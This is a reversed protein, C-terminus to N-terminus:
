PRCPLRGSQGPNRADEDDGMTRTDFMVVPKSTAFGHHYKTGVTAGHASINPLKVWRFASHTWTTSTCAPGRSRAHSTCGEPAESDATVYDFGGEGGVKVTKLIKCPVLRNLQTPQSCQSPLLAIGWLPSAASSRHCPSTEELGHRSYRLAVKVHSRVMVCTYPQQLRLGPRVVKTRNHADKGIAVMVQRRLARAIGLVGKAGPRRFM